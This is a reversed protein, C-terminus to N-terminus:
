RYTMEYSVEKCQIDSYGDRQKTIHPITVYCRYMKQIFATFFVDVEKSYGDIYTLVDKMANNTIFYSNTTYTKSINRINETYKTPNEIHSGSLYLMGYKGELQQKFKQLTEINHLFEVDDELILVEDVNDRVCQQIIARHSLLCGLCGIRYKEFREGPIHQKVHNCFDKNWVNVEESTPKIADFFEYDKIGAKELEKLVQERRDTRHKLNIVYVKM